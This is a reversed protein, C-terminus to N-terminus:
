PTTDSADKALQDYEGCEPTKIESMNHLQPCSLSEMSRLCGVAPQYLKDNPGVVKVRSRLQACNSDLVPAMKQRLEDTLDPGAVAELACTRITDCLGEAADTLADASSYGSLMLALIAPRIPTTNKM